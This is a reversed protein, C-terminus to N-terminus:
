QPRHRLFNEKTWIVNGEDDLVLEGQGAQLYQTVLGPPLAVIEDRCYYTEHVFTTEGRAQPFTRKSKDTCLLIDGSRIILDHRESAATEVTLYFEISADHVDGFLTVSFAPYQYLLPARMGPVPILIKSGGMAYGDHLLFLAKGIVASLINDRRVFEYTSYGLNGSSERGQVLNVSNFPVGLRSHSPFILAGDRSLVEFVRKEDNLDFSQGRVDRVETSM